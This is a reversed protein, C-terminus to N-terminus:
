NYSSINYQQVFCVCFYRYTRHLVFVRLNYVDTVFISTPYFNFKITLSHLDQYFFAKETLELNDKSDIVIVIIIIIISM